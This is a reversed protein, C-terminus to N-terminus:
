RHKHETALDAILACYSDFRLPSITGEELAKHVACDPEQLHKCDPYRCGRGMEFIEPFYAELEELDLNWMGFSRIGPTDICFGGGEIPLLSASSTTHSGKFTHQSLLGTKLVSGTIANILSTKGAGSQGSFVSAKGEMAKKLADIGEGTTASVPFIPINIDRYTDQFLQYLEKEQLLLTAESLSLDEISQELLDIKNVVIIPQMNGKQAAIIYRDVLAPKLPPKLVSCTILVQDINVAILQEKRRSLNDARSLLSRREKVHIISGALDQSTPIPQFLVFDGVAVLNKTRMNQQKLTGKLSCLYFNGGADVVIGEPIIALVRGELTNEDGEAFEVQRKRKQDQDSKKFQSRDKFSAMKRDKRNEKREQHLFSDEWQEHDSM